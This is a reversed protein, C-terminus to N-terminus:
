LFHFRITREFPRDATTLQYNNPLFHMVNPVDQAELAIACSPVSQQGSSLTMGESLFGGSYMVLAPADTFMKMTRGSISDKLVCAKKLLKHKKIGRIRKFPNPKSLIFANNYGKALQIQEQPYAIVRQKIAIEKRFDFATGAVPIVDKPIHEDDNVCVNNSYITLNQSLADKSFDGIMNFYTHNSMNIYTDHDTWAKYEITIWNTDDITYCAEYYRNGPYGDTMHEQLASFVITASEETCKYSVVNWDYNSLNQYGGHIQHNNENQSLPYNAQGIPLLANQIRGANPALTAGAYCSPNEYPEPTPFSLAVDVFFGDTNLMAINQISAGISTLVVKLGFNTVIEFSSYSHGSIGIFDCKKLKM